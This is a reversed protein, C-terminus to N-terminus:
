LGIGVKFKPLYKKNSLMFIKKNVIKSIENWFENVSIEIYECFNKIYKPDCLGDYKSVIKIANSRSIKGSRIEFNLYDTVKGFGFKYYKIMQNLTVWDDDIASIGYLDGTKSVGDKRILLGNTVAVKANNILSWDDWFWGLYIIQINNDKFEKKTPYRYPIKKYDNEIINNMWELSCNKLTNANRLANGDYPENKLTGTDNMSLAPNDGWFILRINYKIAIQPVSSYLALEPARLYNGQFFGKKLLKKWTIPSPSSILVDFGLNILNSLNDAGNKTIQEPPYACCVLLPNLNLKDRVWLAQRTSDKGGSVGIICDFNDKKQSSYKKILNNILIQKDFKDYNKKKNFNECALCLGDRNFKTNPRTSPDLCAKCYKMKKQTKPFIQCKAYVQQLYLKKNL